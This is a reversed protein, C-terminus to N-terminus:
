LTWCPRPRPCLEGDPDFPSTWRQRVVLDRDGDHDQDNFAVWGDLVPICDAQEEHTDVREHEEMDPTRREPPRAIRFLAISAVGAAGGRAEIAVRAGRAPQRSGRLRARAAAAVRCGGGGSDAHGRPMVGAEGVGADVEPVTLGHGRLVLM